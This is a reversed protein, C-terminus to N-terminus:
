IVHAPCGLAGLRKVALLRAVRGEARDAVDGHARGEAPLGGGDHGLGGLVQAHIHM